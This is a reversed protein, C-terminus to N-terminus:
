QLRNPYLNEDWRQGAYRQNWFGDTNTFRGPQIGRVTVGNVGGWSFGLDYVNHYKNVYRVLLDMSKEDIAFEQVYLGISLEFQEKYQQITSSKGEFFVLPDGEDNNDHQLVILPKMESDSSDNSKKRQSKSTSFTANSYQVKAYPQFKYNRKYDEANFNWSCANSVANAFLDGRGGPYNWFLSGANFFVSDGRRILGNHCAQQLDGASHFFMIEKVPTACYKSIDRIDEQFFTAVGEVRAGMGRLADLVLSWIRKPVHRSKIDLILGLPANCNTIKKLTDMSESISSSTVAAMALDQFSTSAKLERNTTSPVRQHQPAPIDLNEDYDTMKCREEQNMSSAATSVTEQVTSVDETGNGGDSLPILETHGEKKWKKTSPSVDPSNQISSFPTGNSDLSLDDDLFMDEDLQTSMKLAETYTLIWHKLYIGGGLTRRTHKVRSFNYQKLFGTQELALQSLNGHAILIHELLLLVRKDIETNYFHLIKKEDDSDLLAAINDMKDTYRREPRKHNLATQIRKSSKAINQLFSDRAELVVEVRQVLHPDLFVDWELTPVKGFYELTHATGYAAVVPNNEAWHILQPVPTHLVRRSIEVYVDPMLHRLINIWHPNALMFPAAGFFGGHAYAVNEILGSQFRIQDQAISQMAFSPMTHGYFHTSSEGSHDHEYKDKGARKYLQYAAIFPDTESSSSSEMIGFTDNNNRNSSSDNTPSISSNDGDRKSRRKLLGGGGDGGAGGRQSLIQVRRHHDGEYEQSGDYFERRRKERKEFRGQAKEIKKMIRRNLIRDKRKIVRSRLKGMITEKDVKEMDLHALSDNRFYETAQYHLWVKRRRRITRFSSFASWLSLAVRLLSFTRMSIGLVPEYMWKYESFHYLKHSMCNWYSINSTKCSVGKLGILSVFWYTILYSALPMLVHGLTASYLHDWGFIQNELAMRINLPILEEYAQQDFEDEFRDLTSLLEDLYNQADVDRFQQQLTLDMSRSRKRPGPQSSSSQQFLSLLPSSNMDNTSKAKPPSSLSKKVKPWTFNNITEEPALLGRKEDNNSNDEDNHNSDGGRSRQLLSQMKFQNMNHCKLDSATSQTTTTTAPIPSPAKIEIVVAPNKAIIPPRISGYSYYYYHCHQQLSSAEGVLPQQLPLLSERTSSAKQTTNKGNSKKLLSELQNFSSYSSPQSESESYTTAFRNIATNTHIATCSSSIDTLRASASSSVATPIVFHHVEDEHRKTKKEEEDDKQKQQSLKSQRTPLFGMIPQYIPCEFERKTKKKKKRRKRKKL